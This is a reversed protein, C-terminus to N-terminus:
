AANNAVEQDLDLQLPIQKSQLSLADRFTHGRLNSELYNSSNRHIRAHPMHM